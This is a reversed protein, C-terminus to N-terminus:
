FLYMSKTLKRRGWCINENMTMREIDDVGGGADVPLARWLAERRRLPPSVDVSPSARTAELAFFLFVLAGGGLTV